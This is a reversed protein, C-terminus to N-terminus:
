HAADGLAQNIEQLKSPPLDPWRAYVGYCSLRSVAPQENSYLWFDYGDPFRDSRGFLSGCSLALV